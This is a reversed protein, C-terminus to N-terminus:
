AAPTVADPVGPPARLFRFTLPYRYREGRRASVAAEVTSVVHFLLLLPVMLLGLVALSLSFALLLYVLLSLQFNLAERGHAEVFADVTRARLWLACVVVVNAFPVVYGAFAALHCWMARLAATEAALGAARTPAGGSEVVLALGCIAAVWGAFLMFVGVVLPVAVSDGRPDIAIGAAVVTAGHTRDVGFSLDALVHGSAPATVPPFDYSLQATGRDTAVDASRQAHSGPEAWDIVREYRAIEAGADDRLVLELPVRYRLRHHERDGFRQATVANSRVTMDLRLRSERAAPLALALGHLGAAPDFAQAETRGPQEFWLWVTRLPRVSGIVACCGLVLLLWGRWASM